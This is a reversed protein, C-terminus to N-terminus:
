NWNYPTLNSIHTNLDDYQLSM